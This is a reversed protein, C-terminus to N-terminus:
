AALGELETMSQDPLALQAPQPAGGIVEIVETPQSPPLEAISLVTCQPARM